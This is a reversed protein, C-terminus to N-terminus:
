LVGEGDLEAVGRFEGFREDLQLDLVKAGHVGVPDVGAVVEGVGDQGFTEASEAPFWGATSHGLLLLIGGM